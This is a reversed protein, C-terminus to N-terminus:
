TNSIQFKAFPGLLKPSLAPYAETNHGLETFSPFCIVLVAEFTSITRLDVYILMFIHDIATTAKNFNEKM